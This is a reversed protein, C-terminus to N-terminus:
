SINRLVSVRKQCLETRVAKLRQFIFYILAVSVVCVFGVEVQDGTGRNPSTITLYNVIAVVMLVLAVVLSVIIGGMKKRVLFVAIFYGVSIVFSEMGGILFNQAAVSPDPVDAIELPQPIDIFGFYCGIAALAGLLYIGGLILFLATCTKKWTKM